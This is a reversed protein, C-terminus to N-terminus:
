PELIVKLLGPEKQQLRCFWAPGEALPAAASLLPDVQVAGRAMLDLCAAYEGSSACSGYLTLERTVVAQLALEVQPALNGVLTVRGGKRVSAVAAAVTPAIGVAEIALDAGRGSTRRLVEAPLDVLDCRIAEDAGLKCALALRTPDVDAALIKGCGAARLVEVVLLGIMGTGVVVAFDNLDVRARRVAHVAVSLPEVMAAQRFGVGEPLRVLVSGPVAVFQAFAGDRRYEDCSVGLVRRRDCLNIRGGRCPGCRGCSIMSDMTVRDGPKWDSDGAAGPPGLRAIVGAAEHGMIIPPRRRGTSGDMGHVDSGCIGCARVEVLVEGPELPPEPVDRMELRNYETLVLAQM